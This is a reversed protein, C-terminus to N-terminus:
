DFINSSDLLSEKLGFGMEMRSVFKCEEEEKEEEKKRRGAKRVQPCFLLSSGRRPQHAFDAKTEKKEDDPLCHECDCKCMSTEWVCTDCRCKCYDNRDSDSATSSSSDSTTSSSSDSDFDEDKYFCSYSSDSDNATAFLKESDDSDSDEKEKLAPTNSFTFMGLNEEDKETKKKKKEEEEEEKLVPHVSLQRMLHVSLDERRKQKQSTLHDYFNRPDPGGFCASLGPRPESLDERRKQKEEETAAAAAAAAAAVAPSPPPPPPPSPSPQPPSPSVVEVTEQKLEESLYYPRYRFYFPCKWGIDAGCGCSCGKVQDVEAEAPGKEGGRIAKIIREVSGDSLEEASQKKITLIRPHLGDAPPKDDDDDDDDAAAAASEAIFKFRGLCSCPNTGCVLCTMVPPEVASTQTGKDATFCSCPVLEEEEKEEPTGHFKIEAEAAVDAVKVSWAKKDETLSSVVKGDAM